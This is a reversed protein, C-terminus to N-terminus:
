VAMIKHQKHYYMKKDACSVLEDVNSGDAPYLATGISASINFDIGDISYTQGIRQEISWTLQKLQQPETIDRILICFEDGGMRCVLDSKRSCSNLRKAMEQLVLDGYVHGFTDNIPKFKDLDIYVIGFCIDKSKAENELESAREEFKRRNALGTLEDHESQHKIVQQLELMEAMQKTLILSLVVENIARKSMETAKLTMIIAGIPYILSAMILFGESHESTRTWTHSYMLTIVIAGYGFYYEPFIINSILIIAFLCVLFIYYLALHDFPTDPPLLFCSAGFLVALILGYILRQIIRARLRRYQCQTDPSHQQQHDIKYIVAIFFAFLLQWIVLQFIPSNLYFQYGSLVLSAVLLLPSNKKSQKFYREYRAIFLRTEFDDDPSSCLLFLKNKM